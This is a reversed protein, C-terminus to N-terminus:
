LDVAKGCVPLLIDSISLTKTNFFSNRFLDFEQWFHLKRVGNASDVISILQILVSM